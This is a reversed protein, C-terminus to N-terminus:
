YLMMCKLLANCLVSLTFDYKHWVKWLALNLIEAITSQPQFAVAERLTADDDPRGFFTRVRGLPTRISGDIQLKELLHTHWNPIDPFAKFYKYQFSEIIPKDVKLHKAITAAKGLYNTGHGGRKAM